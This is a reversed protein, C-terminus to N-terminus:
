RCWETIVRLRKKRLHNEQRELVSGQGLWNIASMDDSTSVLSSQAGSFGSSVPASIERVAAKQKRNHVVSRTTKEPKKRELKRAEAKKASEPQRVPPFDAEM